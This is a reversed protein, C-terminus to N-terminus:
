RFLISGRRHFGDNGLFIRYLPDGRRVHRATNALGPHRHHGVDSGQLAQGADDAATLDGLQREAAVVEAGLTGQCHSEDVVHVAWASAPRM